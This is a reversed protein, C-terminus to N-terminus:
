HLSFLLLAQQALMRVCLDSASRVSHGFIQGM